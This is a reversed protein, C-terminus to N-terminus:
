IWIQSSLVVIECIIYNSFKKLIVIMLILHRYFGISCKNMSCINILWLNYALIVKNPILIIFIYIYLTALPFTILIITFSLCSLLSQSHSNPIHVIQFLVTMDSRVSFTANSFCCCFRKLLLNLM